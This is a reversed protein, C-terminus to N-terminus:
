AHSAAAFRSRLGDDLTQEPPPFAAISALNLRTRYPARSHMEEGDFDAARFELEKGSRALTFDHLTKAKRHIAATATFANPQLDLRSQGDQHLLPFRASDANAKAPWNAPLGALDQSTMMHFTPGIIRESAPESAARSYGCGNFVIRIDGGETFRQMAGAAFVVRDKVDGQSGSDAAPHYVAAFDIVARCRAFNLNPMDAEISLPRDDLIAAGADAHVLPDAVLDL